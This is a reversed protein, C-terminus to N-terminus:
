FAKTVYKSLFDTWDEKSEQYSFPKLGILIGSINNIHEFKIPSRTDAVNVNNVGSSHLAVCVCHDPDLLSEQFQWDSSLNGDVFIQSDSTINHLSLPSFLQFSIFLPRSEDKHILQSSFHLRLPGRM